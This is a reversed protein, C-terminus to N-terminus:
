HSLDRSTSYHLIPSLEFFPFLTSQPFTVALTYKLVTFPRSHTPPPPILTPTFSPFTMCCIVHGSDSETKRGSWNGHSVLQASWHFRDQFSKMPGSWQHGTAVSRIALSLWLTYQTRLNFCLRSSSGLGQRCMGAENKIEQGVTVQSLLFSGPDVSM